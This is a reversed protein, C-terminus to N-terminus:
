WRRRYKYKKNQTSAIIIILLLAPLYFYWYLFVHDFIKKFITPENIIIDDDKTTDENVKVALNIIDERGSSSTTEVSVAYIGIKNENGSYENLLFRMTTTGVNEIQGTAILLNKIDENTLILSQSVNIFFNDVYFVPPVNDKVTIEVTHETTNGANDSVSFKIIYKGVRHGNGSYLDEVVVIKQTIDGDVNDNATLQTKIQSLTLTETQNKLITKPGSIVPAVNDIVIVNVTHTGKNGSSDTASFVIPWSGIKNYNAQYQNSDIKIVPPTTDYNDSVSLLAKIEEVNKLTTINANVTKPGTFVPPVADKVLVYVKLDARNGANDTVSLDIEYTGLVKKNATYNDNEIVIKHTIDGDEVDIAWIHTMIEEIPMPNDVNSVFATEGGIVPKKNEYPNTTPYFEGIDFLYYESGNGIPPPIFSGIPLSYMDGVDGVVSVVVTVHVVDSTFGEVFVIVGTGSPGVHENNFRDLEDYPNVNASVNTFSLSFLGIIAMALAVITKKIYKKLCNM